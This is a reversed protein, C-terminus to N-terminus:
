YRAAPKVQKIRGKVARYGACSLLEIQDVATL